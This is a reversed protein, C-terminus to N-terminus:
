SCAAPTRAEWAPGDGPPWRRPVCFCLECTRCARACLARSREADHHRGRLAQARARVVKEAVSGLLVRSLWRRGHTGMVILDSERDAATELIKAWAEGCVGDVRAYRAKAETVAGDFAKKAGDSIDEHPWRIRAGFGLEPPIWSVHVLTVSAGLKEALSLATDLALVSTEGFDVPVLIRSFPSM